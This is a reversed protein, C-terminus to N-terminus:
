KKGKKAAGAKKDDAKRKDGAKAGAAKGKAAAASGGAAPDKPKVSFFGDLRGQQKAALMKALKAAGSRVRDESIIM